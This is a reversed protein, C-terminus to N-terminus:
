GPRAPPCRFESMRSTPYQVVSVQWHLLTTPRETGTEANLAYDLTLDHLVSLFNFFLLM